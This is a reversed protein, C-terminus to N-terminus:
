DSTPDPTRRSEPAPPFSLRFTAGHGPESHVAITGNHDQVIGYSVSLGLGSGSHRTTYFPEFIRPLVEPPIGPGDDAVELHVKGALLETKVRITGTGAIAQVANTLLNLVVQGLANAHGLVPPLGPDLSCSVSLEAHTMDQALLSLTETVVVNLDVPVRDRPSERAFTLLRNAISTVRAAHRHLVKLDEVVAPPLGADEAELLMLELRSTIISLPNNVEHAIGAALRGAAMLREAQRTARDLAMRETIDTIFALAQTGAETVIFSLSIEVPFETGDKRLAVLDLGRGMSRIRPEAFYHARHQIHAARFREPLLMELERGLLEARDYGFLQETKGNVSVIRGAADVIVIGESAADLLAEARSQSRRLEQEANKRQTIDTVFAMFLPEGGAEAFSLSIEVPLESGDKRRGTLDLAQGMPRVRPDLSYNQRHRAHSDRLREPVLMELPQGILEQRSYGFMAETKANVLVIRGHRDVIVIAESASELLAQARGESERLAEETRKHEQAGLQFEALRRRLADIEARLKELDAM